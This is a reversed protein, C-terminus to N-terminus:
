RSFCSCQLGHSLKNSDFMAGVSDTLAIQFDEWEATEREMELLSSCVKGGGLGPLLVQL